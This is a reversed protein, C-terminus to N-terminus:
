EINNVIMVVRGVISNWIVGIPCRALLFVSLHGPLSNFLCCHGTGSSTLSSTLPKQTNSNCMGCLQALHELLPFSPILPSPDLWAFSRLPLAEFCYAHALDAETEFLPRQWNHPLGM